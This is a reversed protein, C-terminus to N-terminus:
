AGRLAEILVKTQRKQEYSLDDKQSKSYCLLLYTQEKHPIDVYIVRVGSSKGTDPLAFRTKRAGGTGQIIDGINPNTMLTDELKSLDYDTLSLKSWLRDFVITMIFERTM